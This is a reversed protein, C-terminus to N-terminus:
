EKKPWWGWYTERGCQTCKISIAVLGSAGCNCKFQQKLGLAPTGNLRSEIDELEAGLAELADLRSELQQIKSELSELRPQIPPADGLEIDRQTGVRVKSGRTTPSTREKRLQRRVRTVVQKPFGLDLLEKPKRGQRLLHEVHDTVKM